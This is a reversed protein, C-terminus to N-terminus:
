RCCHRAATPATTLLAAPDAAHSRAAATCTLPPQALKERAPPARCPAKAAYCSGPLLPLPDGAENVVRSRPLHQRSLSLRLEEMSQDDMMSGAPVGPIGLHQM